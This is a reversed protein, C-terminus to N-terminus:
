AIPPRFILSIFSFTVSSPLHPILRIVNQPCVSSLDSTNMAAPSHTGCACTTVCEDDDCCSTDCPFLGGTLALLLLIRIFHTVLPQM